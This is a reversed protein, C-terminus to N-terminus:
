SGHPEQKAPPAAGAVTPRAAPRHAAPTRLDNEPAIPARGDYPVRDGALWAIPDESIEAVARGRGPRAASLVEWHAHALRSVQGLPEGAEVRQNERVVLEQLHGIVHWRSEGELLVVDPGYGRWRWGSVAPASDADGALRVVGAEPAVVPTGRRAALDVGAHLRAGNSRAALYAKAGRIPAHVTVPSM